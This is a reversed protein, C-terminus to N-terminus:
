DTNPRLPLISINREVVLSDRHRQDILLMAQYFESNLRKQIDNMDEGYFIVRCDIHQILSDRQGADMFPHWSVRILRGGEDDRVAYAQSDVFWFTNKEIIALYQLARIPIFLHDSQSRKLLVHALNYTKSLLRTQQCFFAEPTFFTQTDHATM